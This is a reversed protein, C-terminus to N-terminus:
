AHGCDERLRKVEDVLDAIVPRHDPTPCTCSMPLGADCSGCLQMFPAARDVVDTPEDTV